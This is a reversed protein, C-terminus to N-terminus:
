SLAIAMALAYENASTLTTQSSESIRSNVWSSNVVSTSDDSASPTYVTLREKEDVWVGDVLRLKFWADSSLVVDEGNVTRVGNPETSHKVTITRSANKAKLYIIAGDPCLAVPENDTTYGQVPITVLDDASAQGETDVIIRSSGQLPLADDHLAVEVAPRAGDLTRTANYNQRQATVAVLGNYTPDESGLAACRERTTFEFSHDNEAM